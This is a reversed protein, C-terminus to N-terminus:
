RGGGRVVGSLVLGGAVPEKRAKGARVLPRELGAVAPDLAVVALGHGAVVLEDEVGAGGLVGVVDGLEERGRVGDSAGRLRRGGAGATLVQVYADQEGVGDVVRIRVEGGVSGLPEDGVAFAM